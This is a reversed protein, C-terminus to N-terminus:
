RRRARRQLDTEARDREVKEATQGQRFGTDSVPKRQARRFRVADDRRRVAAAGDAVHEAYQEGHEAGPREM